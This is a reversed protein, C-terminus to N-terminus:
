GAGGFCWRCVATPQPPNNLDIVTLSRYYRIEEVLGDLDFTYEIRNTM